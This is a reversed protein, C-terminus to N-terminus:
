QKGLIRMRRMYLILDVWVLFVAAIGVQWQGDGPCFCERNFVAAFSIAFIFLPVEVWTDFNVFFLHLQRVLRSIEMILRIVSCIFIIIAAGRIFHVDHDSLGACYVSLVSLVLKGVLFFEMKVVNEVCQDLPFLVTSLKELMYLHPCTAPVYPHVM